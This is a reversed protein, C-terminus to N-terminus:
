GEFVAAVPPRRVTRILRSCIRALDRGGIEDNVYAAAGAERVTWELEAYEPSAIVIIPPGAIAQSQKGIWSLCDTPASNLSIVVLCDSFEAIRPNLDGVTRCERVFLSQDSFQRKLEPGWYPTREFVLIGRKPNDTLLFTMSLGM